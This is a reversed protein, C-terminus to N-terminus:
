TACTGRSRAEPEGDDQVARAASYGAALVRVAPEDLHAGRARRRDHGVPHVREGAACRRDLAGPQGDAHRDQPQRGGEERARPMGRGVVRAAEARVRAQRPEDGGDRDDRAHSRPHRHRGRRHGEAEGADRPLRRIADGQRGERWADEHRRDPETRAPAAGADRQQGRGPAEGSGAVQQPIGDFGRAAYSWDVDCLAVLNQSALATM